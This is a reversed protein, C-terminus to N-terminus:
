VGTTLQSTFSNFFASTRADTTEEEDRLQAHGCVFFLVARRYTPDIDVESASVEAYYLPESYKLFLDRRLKFAQTLALNLGALLEADKYRYQPVDVDSTLTDQLLVRAERVYDEVTSLISV